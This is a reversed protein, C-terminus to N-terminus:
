KGYNEIGKVIDMILDELYIVFLPTLIDKMCSMDDFLGMTYYKYILFSLKTRYMDCVEKQPIFPNKYEEFSAGNCFGICIGNFKCNECHPLCSRKVHCYAILLAINKPEFDTLINNEEDTNFQGLELEPYYLRHCPAVKLDGLRIVLSDYASCTLFDSNQETYNRNLGIINYAAVHNDEVGIQPINFIFRLMKEKDYGFYEYAEDILYDCYNILHQISEENWTNDRVELTFTRHPATIRDSFNEKWWKRNEIQYKINDSSIMPHTYIQHKELFDSLKKYYEDSNETRGYDCYKGDVSASLPFDIHLSQLKDIYSEVKKTVEDDKLFQMNDAALVAKPRKEEPVQSFTNYICDIVKEAIPTTLWEASFIDLSCTFENKVYWNLVKQLNAIIVEEKHLKAPYLNAQNKKLYCYDCNARCAGTLFLEIRGMGKRFRTYYNRELVDNALIKDQEYPTIM